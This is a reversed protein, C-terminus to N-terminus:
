YYYNNYGQVYPLEVENIDNLDDLENAKIKGLSVTYLIDDMYLARQVNYKGSYWNWREIKDTNTSHSVKGRISINNEDIDLIYAGQWVYEGYANSPVEGQQELYRSEDIEALLIPIIIIGREKDFLFAKHDHLAYSETGRDGIEIKAVEKPNSVDTVDFLSIKIGQYWAFDLGRVSKLEDAAEVTNKGIGIVHNEDYPHLYDSYGPIKLYGLVEPEKPNSLDIVFFPDIKKFTVLYARDGLFRASYIKEGKALDEVSGIIKLDEDLVFIHNLSDGEWVQGTTTAIRFNDKYEDMSFQNLVHGPVEGSTKYNINKKDISIKHIVARETEKAIDRQFKEIKQLLEKDFDKKEEGELSSSYDQIIKNVDSYKEYSEKDSSMIENVKDMESDPLIKEAVIEVFREAYIDYGVRKTGTLYINDKSVYITNTSGTLFVESEFNGKDVDIAMINTFVYNMDPYPFYSIENAHVIKKVDNVEFVPPYVNQYIYDTSIVYVYDNIMRADVYSGDSVFKNELEPNERDSVDYVYVVTRTKSSREPYIAPNLADSVKAIGVEGSYYVNEYVQSFVILKDGNIFINAITKNIDIESLIEMDKAPFADVIVVKNGSVTYIYKGDNKVIDPEDVGKVQINTESYDSASEGASSEASPSAVGASFSKLIGGIRGGYYYNRVRSQNIYNSLEEYSNFSNIKVDSPIFPRPKDLILSIGIIGLILATLLVAIGAFM